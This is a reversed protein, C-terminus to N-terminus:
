TQGGDESTTPQGEPPKTPVAISAEMDPVAFAEAMKRDKEAAFYKAIKQAHGDLFRMVREARPHWCDCDICFSQGELTIYSPGWELEIAGAAVIKEREGEEFGWCKEDFYIKGCACDIRSSGAGDRFAEEFGSMKASM